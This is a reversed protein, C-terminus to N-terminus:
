ISGARQDVDCGGALENGAIINRAGNLALGVANRMRAQWTKMEQAIMRTDPPVYEDGRPKRPGYETRHRYTGSRV